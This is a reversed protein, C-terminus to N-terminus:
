CDRDRSDDEPPGSHTQVGAKASPSMRFAAAGLTASFRSQWTAVDPVGFFNLCQAVMQDPSAAPGVWGLEAMEKTPFQKLWATREAQAELARCREIDARYQAERRMWFGASSGLCQSLRDAMERNLEELGLMLRQVKELDEGLKTAFAERSLSRAELLEAITAGPAVAWEPEFLAESM